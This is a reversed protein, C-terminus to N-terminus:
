RLRSPRGNALGRTRRVKGGSIAHRMVHGCRAGVASSLALCPQPRAAGGRMACTCFLITSSLLRRSFYKNCVVQPRWPCRRGNPVASRPQRVQVDPPHSRPQSWSPASPSPCANAATHNTQRTRRVHLAFSKCTTRRAGQRGSMLMSAPALAHLCTWGAGDPNWPCRLSSDFVVVCYM